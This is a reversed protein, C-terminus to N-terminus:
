SRARKQRKKREKTPLQGAGSGKKNKKHNSRAKKTSWMSAKKTVCLLWM